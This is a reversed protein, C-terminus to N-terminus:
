GGVCQISRIAIDHYGQGHLAFFVMEWGTLCLENVARVTGYHSVETPSWPTYDNLVLLGGQKLVPIAAKIDARVGQYSHDADIYIWDFYGTGFTELIATSRGQHIVVRGARIESEFEDFPFDSFNIDILELRSPRTRTLIRKAFLGRQTGVEAVVAQSPLLALMTERNPLVRCNQLQEERLTPPWPIYPDTTLRAYEQFLTRLHAQTEDISALVDQVSRIQDKSPHNV